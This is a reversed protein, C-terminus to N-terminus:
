VNSAARRQISPLSRIQVRACARRKNKQDSRNSGSWIQQSQPCPLASRYWTAGREKRRYCIRHTHRRVAFIWSDRGGDGNRLYKHGYFFQYRDQFFKFAGLPHPDLHPQAILLPDSCQRDIEDQGRGTVTLALTKGHFYGKILLHSFSWSRHATREEDSARKTAPSKYEQERCYGFWSLSFLEIPGANLRWPNKTLEAEECRVTVAAGM